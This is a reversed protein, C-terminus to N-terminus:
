LSGLGGAATSPLRSHPRFGPTLIGAQNHEDTPLQNITSPQYNIASLAFARLGDVMLWSSDVIGASRRLSFSSALGDREDRAPNHIGENGNQPTFTKKNPSGTSAPVVFM